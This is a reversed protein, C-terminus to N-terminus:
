EIQFNVLDVFLKNLFKENNNNINYIDSDVSQINNQCIKEYSKIIENNIQQNNDENELNTNNEYNYTLLDTKLYYDILVIHEQKFLIYKILNFQFSEKIITIIDLKNQIINLGKMYLKTNKNHHCSLFLKQFYKIEYKNNNNSTKLKSIKELSLKYTQKKLPYYKKLNLLQNNNKNSSFKNINLFDNTNNINYNNLKSFTHNYNNNNNNNMNEKSLNQNKKLNLNNSYFFVKNIIKQRVFDKLFINNIFKFFNELFTIFGGIYSFITQVKIYERIVEEVNTSMRINVQLFYKSTTKFNIYNNSYDFKTLNIKKENEFIFGHKTTLIFKKLFIYVEQLYSNTISTMYDVIIPKTPIKYDTPDFNFSQYELAFFTGKLYYDIEEQTSCTVTSSNVCPYLKITLLSYSEDSYSGYLIHNLNKICYMKSYNFTKYFKKYDEGFDSENCQGVDLLTINYKFNGFKDRTGIRYHVKPYYISENIYYSFNIPEELGFAFYFSNNRLYVSDKKFSYSRTSSIASLQRSYIYQFFYYFIMSIIFLFSFLTTIIGFLSGNKSYGGIFLHPTYGYMDFINYYNHHSM